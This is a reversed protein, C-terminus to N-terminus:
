QKATLRKNDRYWMQRLSLLAKKNSQIKDGAKHTRCKPGYRAVDQCCTSSIKKKKKTRRQKQIEHTEM